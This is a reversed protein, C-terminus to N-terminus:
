KAQPSVTFRIKKRTVYAVPQSALDNQVANDFIARHSCAVDALAMNKEFDAPSCDTVKGSADFALFIMVDASISNPLANVTLEADPPPRIADIRRGEATDPLTLNITSELFAHVKQGNRLTPPTLKRRKLIRCVEKALGPDGVDRINTCQSVKGEPDVMVRNTSGASAGKRLAWQPYDHLRVASSPSPVSLGAAAAFVAVTLM